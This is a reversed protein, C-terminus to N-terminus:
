VGKRNVREGIPFGSTRLPTQGRARAEALARFMEGRERFDRFWDYSACGPSLLVVDGPSSQANAWAFADAFTECCRAPLPPAAAGGCLLRWLEPATQGMLAVAKARRAIAAAFASLDVRKDYGGALLVIPASFSELACIASEPTTALSDNIFRRGGAEGVTQLRHPLPVYSKLGEEMARANVGASASAALAALANRANHPGALPLLQALPLRWEGRECRIVAEREDAAVFFAGAGDARSGGFWMTRGNVPWAAIDPDDANLVAMDDPRQWRLIAQKASRYAELTKHRDLHNPSFNSVVAIEPRARIRDLDELQFSSLELVVWEDAASSDVEPLLSVGVNGGLRCRLGAAKLISHILAATTSKGNSGTVGIVRGRHHQWFLGMESTLPVGARRALELFPSEAPVAPNVVVLDADLFDREDHGGLRLKAPPFEDLQALSDALEAESRLDTLTVLAGRSVLFRVAGVGGGFRGLGMVTVRRGRLEMPPEGVMM